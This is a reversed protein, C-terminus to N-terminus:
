NQHRIEKAQLGRGPQGGLKKAQLLPPNTRYIQNHSAAAAILGASPDAKLALTM